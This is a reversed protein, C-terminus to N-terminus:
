FTFECESEDSDSMDGDEFAAWLPPSVSPSHLVDTPSRCYDASEAMDAVYGDYHRM